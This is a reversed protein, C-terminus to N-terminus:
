RFVSLGAARVACSPDSRKLSGAELQLFQKTHESCAFVNPTTSPLLAKQEGPM